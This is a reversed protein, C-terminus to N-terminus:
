TLPAVTGVCSCVLFCTPCCWVIDERPGLTLVLAERGVMKNM